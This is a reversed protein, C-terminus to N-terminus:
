VLRRNGAAPSDYRRVPSPALALIV